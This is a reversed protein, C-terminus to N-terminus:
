ETDGETTASRRARAHEMAERLLHALKAPDNQQLAPDEMIHIIAEREAIWMEEPEILDIAELLDCLAEAATRLKIRDHFTWSKAGLALLTTITVGHTEADLYLDQLGHGPHETEMLRRASINYAKLAGYVPAHRAHYANLAELSPRSGLEQVMAAIDTNQLFQQWSEQLLTLLARRHHDPVPRVGRTWQSVLPQKVGLRNAIDYQSVGLAKLLDILRAIVATHLATATEM